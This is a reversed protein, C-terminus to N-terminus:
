KRSPICTEAKLKLFTNFHFRDVHSKEADPGDAATGIGYEFAVGLLNGPAGPSRDLNRHHGVLIEFQCSLNSAPGAGHRLISEGHDAIRFDVDDHFQDAAVPNGLFQDQFRDLVALM